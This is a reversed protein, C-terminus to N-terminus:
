LKWSSGHEVDCNRHTSKHPIELTPTVVTEMIKMRADKAMLHTYKGEPHDESPRLSAWAKDFRPKPVATLNLTSRVCFVVM